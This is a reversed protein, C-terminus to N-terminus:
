TRAAAVLRLALNPADFGDLNALAISSLGEDLYRIMATSFGQWGGDHEVVRGRDSLSVFWGLGYSSPRGNSLRTEVFMEALRAGWDNSLAAEWRAFDSLSLCNLEWRYDHTM